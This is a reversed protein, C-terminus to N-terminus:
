APDPGACIVDADFGDAALYQTMRVTGPMFGKDSCGATAAAKSAYGALWQATPGFQANVARTGGTILGWQYVTSYIGIQEVGAFRLADYQGVLSATDRQEAARTPSGSVALWSNMTEVDLWWEVNAARRRASEVDVHHLRRAAEAAVGFAQWGANWGYDFSCAVSNPDAGSCVKPSTQGIPWHKARVPGPDGTNTYFAPASPLRKAWALEKVLCPNTTFTSGDNAGLVGDSGSSLAPLRGGCQPFSIDRAVGVSETEDRLAVAREAARGITESAAPVATMVMSVTVVSVFIPSFRM